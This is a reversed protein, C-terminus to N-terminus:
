RFFDEDKKAKVPKMVINIGQKKADPFGVLEPTRVRKRVRGRARRKDWPSLDLDAMVPELPQGDRVIRVAARFKQLEMLKTYPYREETDQQERISDWAWPVLLGTRNYTKMRTLAEREGFEAAFRKADDASGINLVVKNRCTELVTEKFARKEELQIQATAQVVLCTACRFSRGIALLREFDPNVYRPFEDIYLMQPMQPPLPRRFVAQQFHMILFQGFADGLAGLTGLCTNAILVGGNALHDDLDLDSKGCLVNNLMRNNIINDLQLRLGLQFQKAKEEMGLVEAKFYDV